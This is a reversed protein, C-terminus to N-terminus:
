VNVNGGSRLRSRGDSRDLYSRKISMSTCNDFDDRGLPGYGRDVWGNSLCTATCRSFNTRAHIMLGGMLSILEVKGLCSWFERFGHWPEMALLVTGLNGPRGGANALLRAIITTSHSDRGCGAFQIAMERRRQDLKALSPDSRRWDRSPLPDIRCELPSTAQRAIHLTPLSRVQCM